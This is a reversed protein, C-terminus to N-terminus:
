VVTFEWVASVIEKKRQQQFEALPMLAKSMFFRRDLLFPHTGAVRYDELDIVYTRQLACLLFFM